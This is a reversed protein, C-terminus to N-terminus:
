APASGNSRSENILRQVDQRRFRLLGGVRVSQLQGLREYRRVTQISCRLVRAVDVTTLLREQVIDSM